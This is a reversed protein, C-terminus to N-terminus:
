TPGPSPRPNSDSREREHVRDLRAKKPHLRSRKAHLFSQLARRAVRIAGRAPVPRPENRFVAAISRAGDPRAESRGPRLRCASQQEFHSAANKARRRRFLRKTIFPLDLRHPSDHFRPERRNQQDCKKQERSGGQAYVGELANRPFPIRSLGAARQCAKKGACSACNQPKPRILISTNYTRRATACGYRIFFGSKVSLNIRRKATAKVASTELTINASGGSGPVGFFMERLLGCTM